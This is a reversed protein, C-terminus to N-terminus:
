HMSAPSFPAWNDMGPGIMKGFGFSHGMERNRNCFPRIISFIGRLGAVFPSDGRGPNEWVSWDLSNGYQERLLTAVMDRSSEIVRIVWKSLLATNTHDLHRIGLGGHTVPRSVYVLCGPCGGSHDKDGALFFRRMTGELRRRVGSPMRFVSMFYTPIASLVAKVLVLRGGRSIMRAWWGGLRAEVKELVPQWDQVRLRRDALPLGLSRVPLTGIPTELLRACRSTEETSLGFGVFISKARNLPLGSFDSFINMMNSLIRAAIESGQIFFTTDDVYQLLPIGVPCGAM